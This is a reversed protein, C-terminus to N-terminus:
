RKLADSLISVTNKLAIAQDKELAVRDSECLPTIGKVKDGQFFLGMMSGGPVAAELHVGSLFIAGQQDTANKAIIAPLKEIEKINTESYSFSYSPQNDYTALVKFNNAKDIQEFGCGGAYLQNIKQDNFKLSAAYPVIRQTAKEATVKPLFQGLSQYDKCM